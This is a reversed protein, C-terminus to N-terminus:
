RSKARDRIEADVAMEEFKRTNGNRKAELMEARYRRDAESENRIKDLATRAARAVGPTPATRIQRTLYGVDALRGTKDHQYAEDRISRTLQGMERKISAAEQESRASRLRDELTSLRQRRPDM